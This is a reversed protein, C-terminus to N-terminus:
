CYDKGDTRQCEANNSKIKSRNYIKDKYLHTRTHTFESYSYSVLHKYKKRTKERRKGKEEKFIM